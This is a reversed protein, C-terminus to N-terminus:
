TSLWEKVGGAVGKEGGERRSERTRFAEVEGWEERWRRAKVDGKFGRRGKRAGGKIVEKKQGSRKRTNWATRM